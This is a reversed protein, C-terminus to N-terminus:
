DEKLKLVAVGADLILKRYDEFKSDPKNYTVRAAELLEIVPVLEIPYFLLSNLGDLDYQINQFIENVDKGPYKNSTNPDACQLLFFISGRLTKKIESMQMNNFKGYRHKTM